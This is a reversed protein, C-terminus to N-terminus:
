FYPPRMETSPLQIKAIARAYLQSALTWVLAGAAFVALTAFLLDRSVERDRLGAVALTAPLIASCIIFIGIRGLLLLRRIRGKDAGLAEIPMEPRNDVTTARHSLRAIFIMFPIVGLYVLTPMEIGKASLYVFVGLIVLGALAILRSKANSSRM